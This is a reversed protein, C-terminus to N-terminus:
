VYEVSVTRIVANTAIDSGVASEYMAFCEFTEGFEIHEIDAADTGNIIWEIADNVAATETSDKNVVNVAEANYPEHGTPKGANVIIELHMQYGALPEALAVGKVRFRVVMQAELPVWGEALAGETAADVLIGAPSTVQWAGVIPETFQFVKTALKTDTGIDYFAKSANGRLVNNKVWNRNSSSSRVSIGYRGNDNCINGHVLNDNASSYLQIGDYSGTLNYD